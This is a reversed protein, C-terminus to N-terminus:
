ANEDTELAEDAIVYYSTSSRKAAHTYVVTRREFGLDSLAVRLPHLAVPEHHERRVYKALQTASIHLDGNDRFPLGQAAAGDRDAHRAGAAYRTVWERVADEFAEGTVEEVDIAGVSALTHLADQWQGTKVRKPYVGAAALLTRAIESQSALVKSTGIRVERGDQLEFTYRATEPDRGRQVIRRLDIGLMGSFHDLAEQRDSM